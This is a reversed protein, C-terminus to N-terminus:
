CMVWVAMEGVSPHWWRLCVVWTLVGEVCARWGGCQCYCLYCAM